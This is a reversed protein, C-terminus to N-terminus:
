LDLECHPIRERAWEVFKLPSFKFQLQNGPHRWDTKPIKIRRGDGGKRQVTIFPGLRIIGRPSFGVESGRLLALVDDMRFIYLKGASKDYIALLDVREGRRFIEELIQELHSSFFSAIVERDGEEIFPARRNSAKRLISRKLIQYINDPMSLVKRWEELRRRDLQHFSTKTSTKLSVGIKLSHSEIILDTKVGDKRMEIEQLRFGLRRLCLILNRRFTADENVKRLIESEADLGIRAEKRGKESM